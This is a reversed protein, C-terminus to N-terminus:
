TCLTKRVRERCRQVRMKLAAPSEGSAIDAYTEGEALRCEVEWETTTLARHVVDFLENTTDFYEFNPNKFLRNRLRLHKKGRNHPLRDLWERRRKTFRKGSDILKLTENVQEERGQGFDDALGHHSDHSREAYYQWHPPLQDDSVSM